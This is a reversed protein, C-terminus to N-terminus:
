QFAEVVTLAVFMTTVGIRASCHEAHEPPTAITDTDPKKGVPYAPARDNSMTILENQRNEVVGQISVSWKSKGSKLWPARNGQASVVLMIANSISCQSLGFVPLDDQLHGNLVAALM